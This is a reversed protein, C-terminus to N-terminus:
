DNSNRLSSPVLGLLLYYKNSCVAACRKGQEIAKENDVADVYMAPAYSLGNTISIKFINM